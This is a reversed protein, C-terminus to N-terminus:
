LEVYNNFNLVLNSLLQRRMMSRQVGYMIWVQMVQLIHLHRLSWSKRQMALLFNVAQKDNISFRCGVSANVYLGGNNTM